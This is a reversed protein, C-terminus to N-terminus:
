ASLSVDLVYDETNFTFGSKVGADLVGIQNLMINEALEIAGEITIPDSDQIESICTNRVLEEGLQAFLAGSAQEQRMLPLKKGSKLTAVALPTENDYVHAALRETLGDDILKQLSQPVEGRTFEMKLIDLAAEKTPRPIELIADGLRGPRMLAPDILDPRNTAGILVVDQDSDVGQLEALLTPVVTKEPTYTATDKRKGTISEIEDWFIVSPFGTTEAMLRAEDFIKRIAAETNGAWKSLVEPGNILFFGRQDSTGKVNAYKERLRLMENFIAKAMFTKGCGPPGHFLAARLPKLGYKSFKQRYVTPYILREQLYKKEAELGKVDEFSVDPVESLSFSGREKAGLVELVMQSELEYRVEDGEKCFVWDAVKMILEHGGDDIVVREDDLVRQVRSVRGDYIEHERIGALVRGEGSGIVLVETGPKLKDMDVDPTVMIEEKIPGLQVLARRNPLAKVCRVRQGSKDNLAKVRKRLEELERRYVHGEDAEEMYDWLVDILHSMDDPVLVKSLQYKGGSRFCEEVIKRIEFRDM